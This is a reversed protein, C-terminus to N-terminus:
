EEALVQREVTAERGYKKKATITITNLGTKLNIKKSFLSENEGHELTINEGNITIQAETETRGLVNVFNNSIAQNNKPETVELMPPSIIKKLSFGLFLLCSLTVAVIVFNKIIKPFILFNYKKIIQQSFLRKDNEESSIIKEAQFDKILKKYNLGLFIAYEKLFNKGYVGAPLKNYEGKELAELYEKKVNIKVAIDTLSLGRELRSQRLQESAVESASMIQNPKFDNM